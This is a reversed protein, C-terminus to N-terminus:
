LMGYEWQDGEKRDDFVIYDTFQLLKEYSQESRIKQIILDRIYYKYLLKIISFRTLPSM